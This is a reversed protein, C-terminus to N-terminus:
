GSPRDGASQALQRCYHDTVDDAPFHCEIRLEELTVDRPTAFTTVTWFFTLDRGDKRYTVAWMPEVPADWVERAHLRSPVSPYALCQHLLARARADLPVSAVDAHLHRILDLAVAEWNVILPRLAAPDFVMRMANREASRGGLLWAFLRTAGQNAMLIDWHRTTVIAPYPEQQKLILEIARRAVSMTPAAIATEHYVPAYGASMLLANRNRMPVQLAEALRDILERSAQAKGTEVYSLHRPSVDAALALDLQSVRRAARWERLLDGVASSV